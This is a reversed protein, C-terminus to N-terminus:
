DFQGLVYNGPTTLFSKNVRNWGNIQTIAITLIVIEEKSYHKELAIFVDDSVERLNANTLSEAFALAVREQEEYFPCEHWAALSHLRLQSEGMNIAEKHHMDLCYACGNIQSVRYKILELLKLDFGSNKLYFETKYMGEFPKQSVEERSIREKM